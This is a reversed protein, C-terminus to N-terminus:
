RRPKGTFRPLSAGWTKAALASDRARQAMKSITRRHGPKREALDLRVETPLEAIPSLTTLNNQSKHDEQAKRIKKNFIAVMDPELNGMLLGIQQRMIFITDKQKNLRDRMAQEGDKAKRAKNKLQIVERELTLVDVQTKELAEIRKYRDSDNHLDALTIPIVTDGM